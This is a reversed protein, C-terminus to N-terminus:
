VADPRHNCNVTAASHLTRSLPSSSALSAGSVAVTALVASPHRMSQSLKRQLFDRLKEALLQRKFREAERIVNKICACCEDMSGELGDLLCFLQTFDTM